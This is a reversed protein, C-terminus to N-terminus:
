TLGESAVVLASRLAEAPEARVAAPDTGTAVAHWAHHEVAARLAANFM